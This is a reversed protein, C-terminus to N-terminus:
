KKGGGWAFGQQVLTAELSSVEEEDDVHVLYEKLEELNFAYGYEKALEITSCLIKEINFEGMNLQDLRDALVDDKDVQEYFNKVVNNM